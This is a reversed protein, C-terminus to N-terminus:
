HYCDDLNCYTWDCVDDADISHKISWGSLMSLQQFSVRAWRCKAVADITFNIPGDLKLLPLM